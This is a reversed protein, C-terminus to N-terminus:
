KKQLLAYYFGDNLPNLPLLQVGTDLQQINEQAEYQELWAPVPLLCADDMQGLFWEVQQQNEARLVSCTAYLLLGGPKLLPWCKQLIERQVKVLEQIDEARRLHKIDPHRRIVGTASCPVDLLIKDFTKGNWWSEVDAADATILEADFGLRQCNERVRELRQESIDLATLKIKPQLEFLHATKGGPAACADLISDGAEPALLQAAMQAGADQVSLWGQEFGPLQVVDTAQKLQLASALGKVASAETLDPLEELYDQVSKKQQNIRLMMPPQVNNAQLLQKWHQPWDNRIAELLWEPHAYNADSKQLHQLLSDKQRIFNRLVGNVLRGAWKKKSKQVQKVAADVVAYDPVRSYLIQYIAIMLVLEIDMDKKKLSKQLLPPQLIGKIQHYFRLVGYCLMRAFAADRSSLSDTMSSLSSLSQGEKLVALLLNLAVKRSAISTEQPSSANSESM